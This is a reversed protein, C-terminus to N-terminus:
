GAVEKALSRVSRMTMAITATITIRPSIKLEM